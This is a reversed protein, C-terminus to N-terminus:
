SARVAPASGSSTKKRGSRSARRLRARRPVGHHRSLWGFSQCERVRHLRGSRPRQHDLAQPWHAGLGRRRGGRAEDGAHDDCVRRQRVRSRVPCVRRGSDLRATSPISAQPRGVGLPPARQHCAHEPRRRPRRGVSRRALAVRGGARRSLLRRRRRRRKRTGRDGYGRARVAQRDARTSDAGARGNRSRAASDRSRRVRVRQRTVLREEEALSTLAPLAAM